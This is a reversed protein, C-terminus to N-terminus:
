KRKGPSASARSGKSSVSSAPSVDRKSSGAATASGQRALSAGSASGQRSPSVDKSAGGSGRKKAKSSFRRMPTIEPEPEGREERGRRALEENLLERKVRQARRLPEMVEDPLDKLPLYMDPPMEKSRVGHAQYCDQALKSQENLFFRLMGAHKYEMMLSVPTMGGGERTEDHLPAGREYLLKCVEFHGNRSACHMATWGDKSRALPNVKMEDLLWLVVKRHGKDAAWQLACWGEGREGEFTHVDTFGEAVLEGSKTFKGVRCLRCLKELNIAYVKKIFVEPADIGEHTETLTVPNVYSMNIGEHKAKIELTLTTLGKGEPAPEEKILFTVGEVSEPTQVAKQVNDYFDIIDWTDDRIAKVRSVNHEEYLVKCMWTKRRNSCMIELYEYGPVFVNRSVWHMKGMKKEWAEYRRYTSAVKVKRCLTPYVYGDGASNKMYSLVIRHHMTSKKLALRAARERAEEDSSDDEDDSMEAPVSARGFLEAARALSHFRNAALRVKKRTSSQLRVVWM